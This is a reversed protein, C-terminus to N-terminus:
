LSKLVSPLPQDTVWAQVTANFLAPKQLNWVHTGGPAVMGKSGQIQSVLRRAMVKAAITEKEGVAVLVPAHFRPPTEISSYTKTIFSTLADIGLKQVDEAMMSKYQDPIGFQWSFLSSIWSSPTVALIPKNAALYIKLITQFTKGGRAATGSLIVHNVAEPAQTMLAQAVVGGFSLGVIHACGSPTSSRILDVLLGVTEQMDFPRIGASLGHEPLDPALCHFGTLSEMQPQWMRGSLPSGHLFLIALNEPSGSEYLNLKQTAM